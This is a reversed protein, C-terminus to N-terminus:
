PPDFFKALFIRVDMDSFRTLLNRYLQWHCKCKSRGIRLLPLFSKFHASKSFNAGLFQSIFGWGLKQMKPTNGIEFYSSEFSIQHLMDNQSWFKEGRGNIEIRERSLLKKLNKLNEGIKVSQVSWVATVRDNITRNWFNKRNQFPSSTARRPPADCARSRERRTHLLKCAVGSITKEHGYWFLTRSWSTRKDIVGDNIFIKRLWEIVAHVHVTALM